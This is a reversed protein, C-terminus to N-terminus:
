KKGVASLLGMAVSGVVAVKTIDVIGKVATNTANRTDRKRVHDLHYKVM